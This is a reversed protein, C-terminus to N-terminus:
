AAAMVGQLRDRAEQTGQAVTRRAADVSWTVNAEMQAETRDVVGLISLSEGFERLIQERVAMEVGNLEQAHTVRVADPNARIMLTRAKEKTEQLSRWAAAFATLAKSAKQYAVPVADIAATAQAELEALGEMAATQGARREVRVVERSVAELAALEAQLGALRQQAAVLAERYQPAQHIASRYAAQDVAAQAADLESTVQARGREVEDRSLSPTIEHQTKNTAM